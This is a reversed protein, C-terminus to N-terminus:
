VLDRYAAVGREDPFGNLGSPVASGPLSPNFDPNALPAAFTTGPLSSARPTPTAPLRSDGFTGRFNQGELNVDTGAGSVDLTGNASTQV